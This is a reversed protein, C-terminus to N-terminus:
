GRIVRKQGFLEVAKELLQFQDEGSLIAAWTQGKRIAEKLSGHFATLGRGVTMRHGDSSGIAAGLEHSNEEYFKQAKLNADLSKRWRAIDEVGKNYIEFGDIYVEPDGLKILRVLLDERFSKIRKFFPHPAIALGGQRHILRISEEMSLGRIIPGSLFLAILHGDLTTIEMGPVVKVKLGQKEAFNFAIESSSFEDHDTVALVQLNSNEASLVSEQPTMGHRVDKSFSSHMHLDGVSYGKSLADHLSVLREKM